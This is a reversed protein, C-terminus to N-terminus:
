KALWVPGQSVTNSDARLNAVSARTHWGNGGRRDPLVNSHEVSASALGGRGGCGAVYAAVVFVVVSGSVAATRRRYCSM